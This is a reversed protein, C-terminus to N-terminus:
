AGNHALAHWIQREPLSQLCAVASSIWFFPKVKPLFALGNVNVLLLLWLKPSMVSETRITTKLSIAKM